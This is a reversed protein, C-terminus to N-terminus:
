SILNTVCSDILNCYDFEFLNYMEPGLGKCGLALRTGLSKMSYAYLLSNYIDNGPKSINFDSFSVMLILCDPFSALGSRGRPNSHSSATSYTPAWSLYAADSEMM